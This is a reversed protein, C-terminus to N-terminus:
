SMGRPIGFLEVAPIVATFYGDEEVMPSLKGDYVLVPRISMRDSYGLRRIKEEVEDIIEEGIQAQRKIEVVYSSRKTQILCNDFLTLLQIHKVTYALRMNMGPDEAREGDTISLM